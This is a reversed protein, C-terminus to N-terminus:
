TGQTGPCLLLEMPIQTLGAQPEQLVEQSFPPSQLQQLPLLASAFTEPIITLMREEVPAWKPFIQGWGDAFLSDLSGPGPM